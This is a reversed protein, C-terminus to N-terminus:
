YERWSIWYHLDPNDVSDLISGRLRLQLCYDMTTDIYTDIVEVNNYLSASSVCFTSYPNDRVLRMDINNGYGDSLDDDDGENLFTLVARFHKRKHLNLTVKTSYEGPTNYSYSYAGFFRNQSDVVDYTNVANVLGAGSEDTLEGYSVTTGTIDNNSAGCVIYNKACNPNYIAFADYQMLQAVLATVIPAAFSTGDGINIVANGSIPLYINTGPAVVDPKNALKDDLMYCSLSNIIYPAGLETNTETKTVLNGVTIANYAKGPPTVFVHINGSSKVFSINTNKIFCDVLEDLYCYKRKYSLDGQIEAQRPFLFGGSFNVINVGLSACRQLAPFLEKPKEISIQYVTAGKAAGEYTKGNITVKKGCILSTVRTAHDGINNDVSSNISVYSLDADTLNYDNPNYRENLELVCIKIGEGDYGSGNNYNASGLGTVSDIETLSNSNWSEEVGEADAYYYVKKVLPDAALSFINESSVEANICEVCNSLVVNNDLLSKNNNVFTNVIRNIENSMEERYHKLYINSNKVLASNISKRTTYDIESDSNDLSVLQRSYDKGNLLEKVSKDGVMVNPVIETYYRNYDEYADTDYGYKEQLVKYVKSKNSNKLFIAVPLPENGGDSIMELLDESIKSEVSEASENTQAYIPVIGIALM